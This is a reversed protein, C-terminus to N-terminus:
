AAPSPAREAATKLNALSHELWTRLFRRGAVATLARM